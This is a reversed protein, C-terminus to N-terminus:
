TFKLQPSFMGPWYMPTPSVKLTAHCPNMADFDVSVKVNWTSIEPDSSRKFNHIPSEHITSLQLLKALMLGVPVIHIDDSCNVSILNCYLECPVPVSDRTWSLHVDRDTGPGIGTGGLLSKVGSACTFPLGKERVTYGAILHSDQNTRLSIM